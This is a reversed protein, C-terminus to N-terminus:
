TVAALLLIFSMGLGSLACADGSDRPGRRLGSTEAWHGSCVLETHVGDVIVQAPLGM